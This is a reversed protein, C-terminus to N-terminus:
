TGTRELGATDARAVSVRVKRGHLHALTQALAHLSHSLEFAPLNAESHIQPGLEEIFTRVERMVSNLEDISQALIASTEESVKSPETKAADLSLGIAYLSQLIGDHLDHALREREELREQQELGHQYTRLATSVPL